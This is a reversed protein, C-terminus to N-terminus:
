QRYRMAISTNSCDVLQFIPPGERTFLHLTGKREDSTGWLLATLYFLQLNNRIQALQWKSRGILFGDRSRNPVDSFDNSLKLKM